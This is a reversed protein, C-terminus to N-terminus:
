SRNRQCPRSTSAPAEASPSAGSLPDDRFAAAGEISWSTAHEYTFQLTTIGFPVLMAHESTFSTIEPPPEIAVTASAEPGSGCTTAIARFTTAERVTVMTSGSAPLDCALNQIHVRATPESAQWFIRVRDGVCPTPEVVLRVTANSTCPPGGKGVARRRTKPRTLPYCSATADAQDSREDLSRTDSIAESFHAVAPESGRGVSGALM